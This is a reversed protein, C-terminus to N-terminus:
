PEGETMPVFRGPILEPEGYDDEQELGYQLLKYALRVAEENTLLICTSGMEWADGNIQIDGDYRWIVLQETPTPQTM